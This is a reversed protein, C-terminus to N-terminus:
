TLRGGFIAHSGTETQRSSILFHVANDAVVRTASLANNVAQTTPHKTAHRSAYQDERTINCAIGTFEVIRHLQYICAM